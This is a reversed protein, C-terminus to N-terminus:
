GTLVQLSSRGAAELPSLAGEVALLSAGLIGARGDLESTVIPLSRTALPMSRHYVASRLEGLFGPGWHLVGGGVVILAPNLASVLGAVTEGVLRGSTRLTSMAWRDGCAVAESMLLGDIDKGAAVADALFPSRGDRAAAKAQELMPRAGALAGLCGVNGCPCTPGDPDVCIHGIDGAAGNAGRYLQGNIILGAGIGTGVKVFLLDDVGKGVGYRHEALAMLNVENDVFVPAAYEGAFWNRIPSRHWGPMLAPAIPLDSAHEVPGPVAIGIAMVEDASVPQAALLEALRQKVVGLIADPGDRIDAPEGRHAIVESGLTTLATDISTAGLEVAAIVGASRPITILSSPRGGVPDALGEEVLLGASILQGVEHSVKGRSVGLAEVLQGRTVTGEARVHRLIAGQVESKVLPWRSTM